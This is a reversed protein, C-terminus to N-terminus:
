LLCLGNDVVAVLVLEETEEVAVVVTLVEATVLSVCEEVAVVDELVFFADHVIVPKDMVVGNKPVTEL